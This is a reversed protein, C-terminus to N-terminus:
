VSYILSKFKRKRLHKNDENEKSEKAININIININININNQFEHNNISSMIKLNKCDNINLENSNSFDSPLEPIIENSNIYKKYVKKENLNMNRKILSIKDSLSKIEEDQLNKEIVMESLKKRYDIKNKQFINDVKIIDEKLECKKERNIEKMFGVNKLYCSSFLKLGFEDNISSIQNEIKFNLLKLNKLEVNLNHFKDIQNENINRKCIRKNNDFFYCKGFMERNLYDKKNRVIKELEKRNNEKAKLNNSLDKILNILIVKTENKKNNLKMSLIKTQSKKIFNLISQLFHKTSILSNKDEIYYNNKDSNSKQFSFERTKKNFINYNTFIYNLKTSSLSKRM